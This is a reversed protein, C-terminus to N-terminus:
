SELVVGVIIGIILIATILVSLCGICAKSEAEADRGMTTNPDFITDNIHEETNDEYIVRTNKFWICYNDDDKIFWKTVIRVKQLLTKSDNPDNVFFPGPVKYPERTTVDGVRNKVGIDVILYKIKKGTFNLFRIECKGNEVYGHEDNQVKYIGKILLRAM